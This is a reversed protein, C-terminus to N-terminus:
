TLTQKRGPLNIEGHRTEDLAELMKGTGCAVCSIAADAVKTTIGTKKEILKDFGWVLSGGGTMVIGNEYIDAVLEPPTRELVTTIAEIIRKTADDFAEIMESSTITLSKPLGSKLCHGRVEMSKEQSPLYVCGINMKLEEATREGIIVNYKHRIYKILASDFYNGAIKISVSEVISGLSIVAIDTTGGGIDIIMNGNPEAINLGAGIAAAIPEEILCVQCAGAQIGADLVAYEQVKTIGSPIGIVVRPKIFHFGTARRLFTRIMQETMEYDSIVGERLPWITIINGPTRGVMKQADRGLKLLKKSNRDVAIVSPEHLVIGKGRMFVLISSTGLDLGINKNFFLV